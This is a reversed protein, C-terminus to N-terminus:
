QLQRCKSVGLKSNGEWVVSVSGIGVAGGHTGGTYNEACVDIRGPFRAQCVFVPSPIMVTSEWLVRDKAVGCGSVVRWDPFEAAEEVLMDMGQTSNTLQLTQAYM